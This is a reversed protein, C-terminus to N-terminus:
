QQLNDSVNKSFSLKLYRGDINYNHFEIIVEIATSISDFEAHAMVKGAVDFFKIKEFDAVKSLLKKLKPEDIEKPLNSLHLVKSPPAINQFNRSGAIKYRHEKSHSFDQALMSEECNSGKKPMIIYQSKSNNVKIYSDGFPCGNLYLKALKAQYNDMYQILATDRKKFMIKVKTVNGYLSFFRFIRYPTVDEPFGSAILINNDKKVSTPKPSYQNMSNGEPKAPYYMSSPLSAPYGHESYSHQPYGAYYNQDHGYSNQYYYSSNNSSYSRTDIPTSISLSSFESQICPKTILKDSSLCPVSESPYPTKTFDISNKSDKSIELKTQSSYQIKLTNGNPYLDTNNLNKFCAEAQEITEMEVLAQLGHIRHFIVVRLVKGYYSFVSALTHINIQFMINTITILLINNKFEQDSGELVIEERGTFCFKIREGKITPGDANNNSNICKQAAEKNEFEIFANNIQILIFCKKVVGFSECASHLDLETTKAPLNKALVVKTPFYGINKSEEPEKPKIVAKKPEEVVQEPEDDSNEPSDLIDLFRSKESQSPFALPDSFNTSFSFMQEFNSSSEFDM